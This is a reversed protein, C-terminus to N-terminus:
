HGLLHSVVIQTLTALLAVFFGVQLGLALWPQFVLLLGAAMAFLSARDLLALARSPGSARPAERLEAGESM